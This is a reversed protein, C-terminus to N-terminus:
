DQIQAAADREQEDGGPPWIGREVAAGIVRQRQATRLNEPWQCVYSRSVRLARALESQSGFLEIAASKTLTEMGMINSMIFVSKLVM